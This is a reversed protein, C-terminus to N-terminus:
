LENTIREATEMAVRTYYGSRLNEALRSSNAVMEAYEKSSIRDILRRLEKLSDICIGVRNDRVFAALASDAWVILPLGSSLYLSAKHPNNYRLYNGTPGICSDVSQSDWVLGWSGELAGPLEDPM